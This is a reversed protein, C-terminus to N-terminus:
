SAGGFRYFTVIWTYTEDKNASTKIEWILGTVNDKTMIWDGGEDVHTADDSLEVGGHGLKTYSRPIRPQYHGDQGYLPDGPQITDCSVANHDADYCMTQGTDPFPYYMQSQVQSAFFLCAIFSLLILFIKRM